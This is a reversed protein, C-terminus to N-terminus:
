TSRHEIRRWALYAVILVNVLFVAGRLPTVRRALEFLEVPLLAGVAVVVIWEGWPRGFWLLVGEVATSAADLWALVAAAGVVSPTVHREMAAGIAGFLSPRDSVELALWEAAREVKGPVLTLLLALALMAPAKVAKYVILVRMARPRDRFRPARSM